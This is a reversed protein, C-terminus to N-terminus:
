VQIFGVSGSVQVANSSNINFAAGVSTQHWPVQTPDLIMFGNALFPMAGTLATSGDKFTIDTAAGLIFYLRYIFIRKGSVAAVIPNDGSGSFNIKTNEIKGPVQVQAGFGTM